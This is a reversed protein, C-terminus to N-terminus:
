GEVHYRGFRPRYDGLGIQEGGAKLAQKLSDLDMLTEDYTLGIDVSWVRFIPRSRMVRNQQNRVPRYDCFRGCDYLEKPDRPGDYNLKFFAQTEFVAAAAQKGMKAKRAGEIVNALVNDAPMCPEGKDDVYLSMRWELRKIDLLDAETKKKKGTLKAIEQALPNFKDLGICAHMLM